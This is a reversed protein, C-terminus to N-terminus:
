VKRYLRKYYKRLNQQEAPTMDRLGPILREAAFAFQSLSQAMEAIGHGTFRKQANPDTISETQEILYSPAAEIPYAPGSYIITAPLAQATGAQFDRLWDHLGIGTRRDAVELEMLASM